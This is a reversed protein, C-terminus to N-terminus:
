VHVVQYLDSHLSERECVCVNSYFGPTSCQSCALEAMTFWLLLNNLRSTAECSFEVMSVYMFDRKM